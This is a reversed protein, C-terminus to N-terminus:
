FEEDAPDTLLLGRASDYSFGSLAIPWSELMRWGRLVTRVPVPCMQQWADDTGLSVPDYFGDLFCLISHGSDPLYVYWPALDPPLPHPYAQDPIVIDEAFFQQKIRKIEESTM